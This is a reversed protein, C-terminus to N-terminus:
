RVSAANFLAIRYPFLRASFVGAAVAPDSDVVTQAAEDSDANFIIIGMGDMDTTLTRGALIVIGQETLAKLYNFHESVKTDEHETAGETLMAHRTPQIRYLYQAM